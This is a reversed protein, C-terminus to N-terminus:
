RRVEESDIVAATDWEPLFTSLPLTSLPVPRPKNALSVLRTGVYPWSILVLVASCLLALLASLAPKGEATPTALRACPQRNSMQISHADKVKHCAVGTACVM